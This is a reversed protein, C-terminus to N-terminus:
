EGVRKLSLIRGPYRTILNHINKEHGKEFASKEPRRQIYAALDFMGEDLMGSVAKEFEGVVVL